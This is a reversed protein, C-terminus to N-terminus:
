ATRIILHYGFQTEIVESIEDVELGFAAEDFEPVMAGRGFLGLDGGRNASPCDSYKTAVESFEAGSQLQQQLDEIKELAKRKTLESSPDPTENHGILIHSAQIQGSM